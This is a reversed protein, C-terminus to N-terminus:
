LDRRCEVPSATLKRSVTRDTNLELAGIKLGVKRVSDRREERM